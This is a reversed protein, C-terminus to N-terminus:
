PLVEDYAVGVSARYEALGRFHQAIVDVLKAAGGATRQERINVRLLDSQGLALQDREAKELIRQLRLNERALELREWTRRLSSEADRVDAAVSDRTFQLKRELQVKKGALARQKGHAARRQLPVNLTAFADLEFPGKDDPNSVARGVDNSGAVGIDLKPLLDNEAKEQELALKDLEYELIRVEPRLRLARAIDDGAILRAPDLPRPLSGPLEAVDPLRPAGDRDRLYLSLGIAANELTRKSAIVFDERAVVQQRNEDVAIKPLEGNGASFVIGDQRDAALALLDEAIRMKQGAAVWKWYALAAKRTAELRKAQVMPDAQARGIRARWLALRRADIPRGALLPIRVGAAFEGNDNTKQGGEWIPFDGTGVKYGGFLTAGFLETPQELLLKGTENEYFGNVGFFADGKLSLDFGGQASLLEAEAIEVEELAALILPFRLEVSRLVGDFDLSETSSTAAQEAGTDTTTSSPAAALVQIRPAEKGQNSVRLRDIASSDPRLSRQVPRPGGSGCSALAFAVAISAGRWAFRARM